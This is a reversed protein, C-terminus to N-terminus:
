RQQLSEVYRAMAQIRRKVEADSQPTFEQGPKQLTTGLFPMQIREHSPINKRGDITDVVEDLPFKGGNNKALVTLDPPSPSMPITQTTPGNGKGDPGHCQACYADYDQKGSQAAAPRPTLVLALILISFVVVSRAVTTLVGPVTSTAAREDIM